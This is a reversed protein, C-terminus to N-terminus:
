LYQVYIYCASQQMDKKNLRYRRGWSIVNMTEEKMDCINMMHWGKVTSPKTENRYMTLKSAFLIIYGNQSWERFQAENMGNYISIKVDVDYHRCFRDFRDKIQEITMGRNPEDTMCYFDLMLFDTTYKGFYMPGYGFMKKFLDVDSSFHKMMTTALSAYGCGEKALEEILNTAETEDYTPFYNHIINYYREFYRVDEMRDKVICQSSAECMLDRDLKEYDEIKKKAHKKELKKKYNIKNLQFFEKCLAQIEEDYPWNEMVILVQKRYKKLNQEKVINLASKVVIEQGDNLAWVLLHTNRKFLRHCVIEELASKRQQFDKSKLQELLINFREKSEKRAKANFLCM